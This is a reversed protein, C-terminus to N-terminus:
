STGEQATEAAVKEAAVKERALRILDAPELGREPAERFVHAYIRM